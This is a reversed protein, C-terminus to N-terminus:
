ASTVKGHDFSGKWSGPFFLFHLQSIKFKKLPWLNVMTLYVNFGELLVHGTKPNRHRRAFRRLSCAFARGVSNPRFRPHCAAFSMTKGHNVM